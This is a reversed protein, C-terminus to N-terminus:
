SDQARKAIRIDCALPIELGGGLSLGDIAAIVPVPLESHMRAVKPGVEREKM